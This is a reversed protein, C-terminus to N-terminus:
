KRLLVYKNSTLKIYRHIIALCLIWSPLKNVFSVLVGYFLDFSFLNLAHKRYIFCKLIFIQFIIKAEKANLTIDRIALFIFM